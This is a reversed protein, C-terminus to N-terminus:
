IVRAPQGELFLLYDVRGHGKELAFEKVAVGAGAGVNVADGSQVLWGSADLQRDINIRAKAERALYADDRGTVPWLTRASSATRLPMARGETSPHAM